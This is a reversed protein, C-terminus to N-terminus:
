KLLLGREDSHSIFSARDEKGFKVIGKSKPTKKM